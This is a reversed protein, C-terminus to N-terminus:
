AIAFGIYTAANVNINTAAVQNVIFGSADPDISDNTTVEAATTNLSLHPDNGAVVGRVTDWLFWDGAADTRKLMIFRAGAAFGCNITQSTGNGTYSFVKSIGALTAFLYATYTNSTGYDYQDWFIYGPRFVSSDFAASAGTGINYVGGAANTSNLGFPVGSSAGIEYQTANKKFAVEWGTAKSRSKCIILEPSVGLAHSFATSAPSVATYCVQDLVGPFRRLCEHVYTNTNTNAQGSAGSGLSFGDMSAFSTIDNAYTAEAATGSSFLEKTAGRLRDTFNPAGTSGRDKTIVLDVPFGVGTVTAAAGTGTRAIAQYVQTGSTPQRMPGRRIAIFVHAASFVGGYKFGTATPMAKDAGTYTAESSSSNPYLIKYGGSDFGRMVDIMRWDDTASTPKAIVFQPEWGLEVTAAGIGDTTFSGCQILGDASTDHAYAEIHYTGDAIVGNVLTLTTGSVTIHGLTAEAATTEGILLKGATLSRHWVYWSGTSDTRKVKVMGVTGLISLDVTANSGASKTVTTQKFFKAADRLFYDVFTQGSANYDADAGITAGDTNFATLGTSETAEAATSSTDLSKTAGRTTDTCRWGTTTSRAKTVHMGGSGSMNPGGTISASAGTGSRINVLFVDEIYVKAPANGGGSLLALLSM